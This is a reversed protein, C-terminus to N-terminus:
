RLVGKFFDLERKVEAALRARDSLGPGYEFHLTFPVGVGLKRSLAAYEKWPVIGEGAPCVHKVRLKPNKKDADWYFDKLCASRIRPAILEFGHTWSFGTEAFAHMVDYQSAICRPDLDKIMEWLDWVVGGFMSSNWTSHNQYCGTLGCAGNLKALSEFGRRIRDLNDKVSSKAEYSFYGTRYLTVGCDRATKLVAEADAAEPGTVATVIMRTALGQKRAAEVAKPLDTRVRSPEVHGGPRVTWEIGDFGAKAMLEAVEDYGLPQFVKSFVHYEQKVPPTEGKLTFPAAAGAAALKLFTRRRM